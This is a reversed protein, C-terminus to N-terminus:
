KIKSNESGELSLPQLRNSKVTSIIWVPTNSQMMDYQGVREIRTIAVQVIEPQEFASATFYGRALELTNLTVATIVVETKPATNHAVWDLIAPLEGGSGGIFVKTVGKCGILQEPAFGEKITINQVGFQQVNAKILAVAEPKREIATVWGCTLLLAGEISVSGTGAGVDLLHDSSHLHLKSLAVVRVEEKTMPVKGRLFAADSIGFSVPELTASHNPNEIIVSCLKFAHEADILESAKATIITETSYSLNNGVHMVCEGLENSSLLNAIYKWSNNEDTLLFVKPYNKVKQIFNISQGHVSSIFADEYTLQQKAFFYQYSSIGPIVSVSIEPFHAKFTRMLSHFGTDGSVLITITRHRHKQMLVVLEEQRGTIEVVEKGRCDFLELHRKGGVVVESREVSAYVAPLILNPNGPGIGCITISNMSQYKITTVRLNM